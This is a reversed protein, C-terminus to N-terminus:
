RSGGHDVFDGYKGDLLRADVAEPMGEGFDGRQEAPGSPVDAVQERLPDLCGMLEVQDDLPLGELIVRRAELGTFVVLDEHGV